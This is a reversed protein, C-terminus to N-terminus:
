NSQYAHKIHPKDREICMNYFLKFKEFLNRQLITRKQDFSHLITKKFFFFRQLIKGENVINRLYSLGTWMGVQVM